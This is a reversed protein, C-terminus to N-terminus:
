HLTPRFWVESGVPVDSRLLDRFACVWRAEDGPVIEVHFSLSMVSTITSGDPRCIEVDIACPGDFESIRPGPAVVLPLDDM